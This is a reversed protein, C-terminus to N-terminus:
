PLSLGLSITENNDDDITVEIVDIRYKSTSLHNFSTYGNVRINILDGIHIDGISVNRNGDITITPLKHFSAAQDLFEDGHQELTSLKEVTPYQITKQRLKYIPQLTSDTRVSILSSDDGIVSGKVIVENAMETGDIPQGISLINGPYQLVIDTDAGISDYTNFKKDWTFEMDFGNIVETLQILADYVNKYIPYTRIRTISDSLTGQIINFSGNTLSQTHNILNWGILGAQVDTYSLSSMLYRDKFLGLWGTARVSLMKQEESLIPDAFAIQGSILPVGHRYIVVENVNVNFIDLANSFKNNRAFVELEDLNIAFYIEDPRNRIMKYRRQRLEGTFIAVTSGSDNRILFEYKHEQAAM